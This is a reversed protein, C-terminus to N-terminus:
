AFRLTMWTFFAILALQFCIIFVYLKSWKSFFPPTEELIEAQKEM